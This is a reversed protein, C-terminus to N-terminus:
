GRPVLPNWRSQPDLQIFDSKLFKERVQPSKSCIKRFRCGGYKGCSSDNMPYYGEVAYREAQELYFRLDHLWEDIQDRSRYTLGRTYRSFGVAVQCADIIVGRIPSNLVIQGAITYLTMQNDPEFQDFYYSGPTSTTTKRDMVFLEENFTVVRDLYGCLIYPQTTGAIYEVKNGTNPNIYNLAGPRLDPEYPIDTDVIMSAKSYTEPGWDLEFKFNVEVAPKGDGFILTTAPDQEASFEDLYWIISRLLNTKTKLEESRKGDRPDPNWGHIRTLLARVVDHLADEHGIGAARERDYDELAHHYEIGWRLHISEAITTYGQIIQYEYLRPCTKFLGISTADWAYQIKTGPLFPSAQETM